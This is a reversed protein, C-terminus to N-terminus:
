PLAGAAAGLYNLSTALDLSNPALKEQIALAHHYYDRAAALDGAEDEVAQIVARLNPYLGLRTYM